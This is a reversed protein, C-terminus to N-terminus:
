DRRIGASHKVQEWLELYALSAKSRKSYSLLPALRLGMKEVDSSYPISSALTEPHAKRFSEMVDRHIRKRGDVMSFFPVLRGADLEHEAFYKLIQDYTRLCLTTPIMPVLLCDAAEFLNESLLSFGPPSDIVILDYDETFHSLIKKLRKHSRKMDDLVIDLHREAFDAPIMDLDDYDTSKSFDELDHKGDILKKVGGKVKPKIRYYFSASAQPDLDWILTRIGESAALYSLNVASATKGVGGKSNYLAISLM